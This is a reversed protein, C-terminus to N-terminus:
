VREEADPSGGYFSHFTHGKMSDIKFDQAEAFGRIGSYFYVKPKSTNGM